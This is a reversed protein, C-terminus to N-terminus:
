LGESADLEGLECWMNDKVIDDVFFSQENWAMLTISSDFARHEMSKAKFDM